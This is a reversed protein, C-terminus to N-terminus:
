RLHDLVEHVYELQDKNFNLISFLYQPMYVTSQQTTQASKANLIREQHERDSDTDLDPPCSSPSQHCSSLPIEKCSVTKVEASDSATLSITEDFSSFIEANETSEEDPSSSEQFSSSENSAEGKLLTTTFSSVVLKVEKELDAM